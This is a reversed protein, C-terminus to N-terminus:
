ELESLKKKAFSKFRWNYHSSAAKLNSKVKENVLNMYFLYEFALQRVEPHYAASSYNILEKYFAQQKEPNTETNMSLVLWMIRFTHRGRGKISSTKYLLEQRLDENSQYLLVLLREKVATPYDLLKSKLVATNKTNLSNVRNLAALLLKHDEVKLAYDLYYTFDCNCPPLNQLWFVKDMTNDFYMKLDQCADEHMLDLSSFKSTITMWAKTASNENLSQEMQTHPLVSSDLWQEKFNTLDKSTFKKVSTLFANTNANKFANVTLYDRVANKFAEDGVLNRLVHLAWAGKKYFTTSSAKPDLLKSGQGMKEQTKLEKAYNYLQKYYYDAGFIAKEALLAYYTAFGEQLWHHTGSTATVMDGFWQHALEHANVNVYNTFDFDEKPRLYTDSFITLTTNEMGAYMFDYVPVQRYLEWPFAIGIESELTDFIVKSYRYTPKVFMSDKKHYYNYLPVGSISKELTYTYDGVVLALLYSPMPQNMSYTWSTLNNTSQKNKLIGNSLVQYKSNFTITLEFIVKENMDDFSPLWNSTYKGQGQTWIENPAPNEWGVFYLAKKPTSHYSFNLTNTGNIFANPDIKIQKNDYKFPVELNNVELDKLAMNRADIVLTDSAKTADFLISVRGQVSKSITDLTIEAKIHTADPKLKSQAILTSFSFFCVIFYAINNIVTPNILKM